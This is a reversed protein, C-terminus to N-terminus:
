PEEFFYPRQSTNPTKPNPQIVPTIAHPANRTPTLHPPTPLLPEQYLSSPKPYPAFPKTKRAKMTADQLKAPCHAKLLTTPNSMRVALQIEDDLRSLFCSLLYDKLLTLRNIIADFSDHYEQVSGAQKLSKLEAMPDDYLEGFKATIAKWIGGMFTAEGTTEEFASAM